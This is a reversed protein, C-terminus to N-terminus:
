SYQSGILEPKHLYYYAGKVSTLEDYHGIEDIRGDRLVVIKDAKRHIPAFDSVFLCTKDQYRTLIQRFLNAQMAPELSATLEDLMLVSPKRIFTRAMAVRAAQGTSLNAGQAMVPTDFGKPMSLVYEDLQALSAADSVDKLSVDTMGLAINEKLTGSFLAPRQLVLGVNNKLSEEDIETLKYGDLMIYGQEPLYLRQLLRLLTTKGSGSKGTIVVKEGARINLNLNELVLKSEPDYRFSLDKITWEGKASELVIGKVDSVKQISDSAKPTGFVAEMEKADFMQTMEQFELISEFLKSVTAMVSRGLMSIALYVGFTIEGALVLHAGVYLLALSGIMGIAGQVSRVNVRDFRPGYSKQVSEDSLDLVQKELMQEAYLSRVAEANDLSELLKVQSGQRTKDFDKIRTKVLPTIWFMMMGMPILPALAIAALSANMLFLVGIVLLSFVGDFLSVMLANGMSLNLSLLKNYKDAVNRNQTPTLQSLPTSLIQDLFGELNVKDVRKLLDDLMVTRVLKVLLDFTLILIMGIGMVDLTDLNQRGFVRDFIVLYFIPMGLSFIQILGSGLALQAMTVPQKLYQQVVWGVTVGSSQPSAQSSQAGM